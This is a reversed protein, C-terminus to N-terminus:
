DKNKQSEQKSESKDLLEHWLTSAKSQDIDSFVLDFVDSYWDVPRGDM